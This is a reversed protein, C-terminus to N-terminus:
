GDDDGGPSHTDVVNGEYDVKYRGAPVEPEAGTAEVVSVRWRGRGQPKRSAVWTRVEGSHKGSHGKERNCHIHERMWTFGCNTM